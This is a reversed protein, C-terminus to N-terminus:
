EDTAETPSWVWRGTDCVTDTCWKRVAESCFEKGNDTIIEEPKDGLSVMENLFEVVGKTEKTELVRAQQQEDHLLRIAVLVYKRRRTDDDMDLAM